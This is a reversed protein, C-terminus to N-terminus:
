PRDQHGIVSERRCKAINLTLVRHWTERSLHQASASWEPMDSKSLGIYTTKSQLSASANQPRTPTMRIM